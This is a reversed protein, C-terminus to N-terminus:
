LCLFCVLGAFRFDRQISKRGEWEEDQVSFAILM